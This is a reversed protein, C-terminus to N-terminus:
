SENQQATIRDRERWLERDAEDIADILGAFCPTQDVQWARSFGDGLLGLDHETLLGVAVIRHNALAIRGVHQCRFRVALLATGM